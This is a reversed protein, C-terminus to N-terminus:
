MIRFKPHACKNRSDQGMPLVSPVCCSLGLGKFPLTWPESRTSGM